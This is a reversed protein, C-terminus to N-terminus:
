PPKAYCIKYADFNPISRKEGIIESKLMEAGRASVNLAPDNSLGQSLPHIHRGM